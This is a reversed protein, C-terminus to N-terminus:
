FGFGVNFSKDNLECSLLHNKLKGKLFFIKSILTLSVRKECVM